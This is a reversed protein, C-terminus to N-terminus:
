DRTRMIKSDFGYTLSFISITSIIAIIKQIVVSEMLSEPSKLADEIFFQYIVYAFTFILYGLTILTYKNEVSSKYLVIIYLISAPVLLRFANKAFYGHLDQYIDHPTLGVGAFFSCGACFFISGAISLLYTKKNKKFLTPVFLFGIGSGLYLFMSSNFIFSSLFNIDGSRSKYGGLDSLYNKTFSYGIQEPDFINGGPYLFSALIVSFIFYVSVFRILYVTWFKLM